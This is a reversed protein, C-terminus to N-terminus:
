EILFVISEEHIQKEIMEFEKEIKRVLEDSFRFQRLMLQLAIFEDANKNSASPCLYLDCQKSSETLAKNIHTSFIGKRTAIFHILVISSFAM